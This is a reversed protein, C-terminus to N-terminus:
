KIRKISQYIRWDFDFDEAAFSDGVFKALDFKDRNFIMQFADLERQTEFTLNLTVPRFKEPEKSINVIM